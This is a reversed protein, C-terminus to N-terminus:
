HELLEKIDIIARTYDPEYSVLNKNIETFKDLALQLEKEGGVHDSMDEWKDECAWEVISGVDPASFLIEKCAYVYEPLNTLKGDEDTFNEDYELYDFFEDIDCFGENYGMNECYIWGEYDKAKIKEAKNFRDKEKNIRDLELCDPCKPYYRECDGGCKCKKVGCCEQALIETSYVLKCKECYFVHSEKYEWEGLGKFKKIYLTQANM